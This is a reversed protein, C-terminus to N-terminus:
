VGEGVPECGELPISITFTSGKGVESEVLFEGRHKEIIEYSLSLGLGTGKGVAKTTFFPEFIQNLNHPPIGCGNDSVSFMASDGEQWVKVTIQGDKEIAQAANILLNMFVQNMQHPLCKVPPLASFDRVLTAKYKIENWVMNITSEFGEVLDVPKWEAEDSRSFTKLDQVIKRVRETGELSEDILDVVDEAIFDPKLRMRAKGVFALAEEHGTNKLAEDQVNLFETLRQLYKQLSRLNSSVYGIPNNIEHAVGAALQGITAMKEHTLTKVQAMKLEAYAQELESSKSELMRNSDQLQCTLQKLHTYDYLNIVAGGEEGNEAFLYSNILFWRGNIEHCFENGFHFFDNLPLDNFFDTIPKGILDAFPVVTLETMAKNCRRIKGERDVLVVVEKICDMTSEWETKAQRVLKFLRRLETHQGLLEDQKGQLEKEIRNRDAIEKQLIENASVLSATQERVKGELLANFTRLREEMEKRDSIDIMSGIYGAFSGDQHFRPSGMGLVWSFGGDGRRLRFEASINERTQVAQGYNKLFPGLDDPHINETWGRGLDQDLNRATFELACRNVFTCQNEHNSLWIMFPAADAMAEFRKESELLAGEMTKQRSLDEVVKVFGTFHGEECFIPYANIRLHLIIADGLIKEMERVVPKGSEMALKGPCEPCPKEREWFIEHCSRGAFDVGPKGCLHGMTANNLVVRYDSDIWAIGLDIVDVLRRFSGESESRLCEEGFLDPIENKQFHNSKM